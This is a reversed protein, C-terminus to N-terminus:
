WKWIWQYGIHILPKEVREMYDAIYAGNGVKRGDHMTCDDVAIMTGPRLAPCIALLEQMSQMAGNHWNSIDLDSSDLYLLDIKRGLKDYEGLKHNLFKVSDGRYILTRASTYEDSFNCHEQSIDVSQLTGQTLSSMLDLILTSLGDVDQDYKYTVGTEVLLPWKCQTLHDYIIEFGRKRKGAKQLLADLSDKHQM